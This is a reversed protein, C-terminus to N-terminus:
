HWLTNMFQYPFIEAPRDPPPCGGDYIDFYPTMSMDNLKGEADRNIRFIDLLRFKFCNVSFNRLQCAKHWYLGIRRIKTTM